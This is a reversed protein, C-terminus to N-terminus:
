LVYNYQNENQESQSESLSTLTASPIYSSQLINLLNNWLPYYVYSMLWSRISVLSVLSLQIMTAGTYLSEAMCSWHTYLPNWSIVFFRMSKRVRLWGGYQAYQVHILEVM